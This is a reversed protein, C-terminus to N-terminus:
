GRLLAPSQRSVWNKLDAYKSKVTEEVGSYFSDTQFWGDSHHGKHHHHGSNFNFWSKSKSHGNSHPGFGNLYYQTNEKAKEILKEHSWGQTDKVGFTKLYENLDNVSWQNFYNLLDNYTDSGYGRANTAAQYATDKVKKGFDGVPKKYNDYLNNAQDKAKSGYDAAADEANVKNAVLWERIKDTSWGEFVWSPLYEKVKLPPKSRNSKVLKVLDKRTAFIPISVGRSKLFSNLRAKSWNEVDIMFTDNVIEGIKHKANESSPKKSLYPDVKSKTYEVWSDIDSQLSDINTKVLDKLYSKDDKSTVSIDHYQLWERLQSESWTDLFQDKINKSDKDFLSKQNSLDLTDLLSNVSDKLSISAPYINERVQTVLYDRDSVLRENVAIGQKNLWDNLDEVSWQSYLWDGPYKGSSKYHAAIKDFNDRATKILKEKSDNSHYKIKADKLVKQLQKSNWTEFVWDSIENKKSDISDGANNLSQTVFGYSKAVKDSIGTSGIFGLVHQKVDQLPALYSGLGKSNDGDGDHDHDYDYDYHKSYYEGLKTLEEEALKRLEPEQDKLANYHIHRDKLFQKLDNLDWSSYIAEVQSRITEGPRNFGSNVTDTVKNAGVLLDFSSSLFFVTVITILLFDLSRNLM